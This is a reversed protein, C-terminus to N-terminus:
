KTQQCDALIMECREKGWNPSLQDDAIFKDFKEKAILIIPLANTKGGGFEVPTNYVAECQTLYIRPNEPNIAKAQELLSNTTPMLELARAPDVSMELYYATVKLVLLETEDKKVKLGEDVMKHAHAIIQKKKELNTESVSASIDYLAAYYWPTWQNKESLAIREFTNALNQQETTGQATKGKEINALMANKFKESQANLSLYMLMMLSILKITKM